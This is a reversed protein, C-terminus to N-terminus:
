AGGGEQYKEMLRVAKDKITQALGACDAIVDGVNRRDRPGVLQDDATNIISIALGRIEKLGENIGEGRNCECDEPIEGCFRCRNASKYFRM